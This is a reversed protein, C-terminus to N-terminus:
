FFVASLGTLVTALLGLSYDQAPAAGASPSATASRSSTAATDTRSPTASSTTSSSSDSSSAKRTGCSKQGEKCKTQGDLDNPHNQICQAYNAQCVFYPLTNMYDSVNPVTGDGCVCDFTLLNADCRNSRAFGGNCLQPCTNLQGNCWGAKESTSIANANFGAPLTFNQQTSVGVALLSSAVFLTSSLM